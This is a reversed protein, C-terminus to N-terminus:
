HKPRVLARDQSYFKQEEFANVSLKTTFIQVTDVSEESHGHLNHCKLPAKHSSKNGDGTYPCNTSWHWWKDQEESRKLELVLDANMEKANPKDQSRVLKHLTKSFHPAPKSCVPVSFPNVTTRICTHSDHASTRPTAYPREISPILSESWLCPEVVQDLSIKPPLPPAVRKLVLRKLPVPNSQNSNEAESDLIVDGLHPQTDSLRQKKAQSRLSLQTPPSLPSSPSSSASSEAARASRLRRRKPPENLLSSTSLPHKSKNSHLCSSSLVRKSSDLKTPNAFNLATANSNQPSSLSLFSSRSSTTKLIPLHTAGTQSIQGSFTTSHYPLFPAHSIVSM